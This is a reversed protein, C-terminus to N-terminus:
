CQQTSKQARKTGAWVLIHECWFLAIDTKPVFHGHRGRYFIDADVISLCRPLWPYLTEKQM